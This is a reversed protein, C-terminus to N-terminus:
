LDRLIEQRKTEYEEATILERDYLSKLELLRAETTGVPGPSDERADASEPADEMIGVINEAMDQEVDYAVRHALGNKRVVNVIGIIFFSAAVLTWVVGFLGAMPIVTTVGILVFFGSVILFPIMTLRQVTRTERTPQYQMTVRGRKRRSM